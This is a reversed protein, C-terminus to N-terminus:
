GDVCNCQRTLDWRSQNINSRAGRHPHTVGDFDDRVEACWKPAVVSQGAGGQTAASGQSLDM